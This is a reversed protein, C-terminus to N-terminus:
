MCCDKLALSNVIDSVAALNCEEEENTLGLCTPETQNGQLSDQQHMTELQLQKVIARQQFYGETSKRTVELCLQKEARLAYNEAYSEDLSTRMMKCANKWEIMRDKERNIDMREALMKIEAEQIKSDLDAQLEKRRLELDDYMKTRDLALDDYMKTKDLALDDHMKTRDLALDDWMKTRDLALDEWIKTRDLALDEWMKTRYEQLKIKERFLNQHELEIEAYLKQEKARLKLELLYGGVCLGTGMILLAPNMGATGLKIASIAANSGTQLFHNGVQGASYLSKM